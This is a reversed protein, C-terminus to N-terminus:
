PTLGRALMCNIYIQVRTRQFSVDPDPYAKMAEDICLGRIVDSRPREVTTASAQALVTSGSRRFDDEEDPSDPFVWTYDFFHETERTTPSIQVKGLVGFEEFQTQQQTTMDTPAQDSPMVAALALLSSTLGIAVAVAIVIKSSQM